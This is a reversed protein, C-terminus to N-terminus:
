RHFGICGDCHAAVDLALAVLERTKKDRAGNRSAANALAPLGNMTDPLSPGSQGADFM